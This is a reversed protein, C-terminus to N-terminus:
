FALVFYICLNHLDTLATQLIKGQTACLRKQIRADDQRQVACFHLFIYKIAFYMSKEIKQLM